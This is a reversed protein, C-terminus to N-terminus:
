LSAKELLAEVPPQWSYVDGEQNRTEMDKLLQERCDDQQEVTARRYRLDAQLVKLVMESLYLDANMEFQRQEEPKEGASYNADAHQRELFM